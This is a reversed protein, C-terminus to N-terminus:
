AGLPAVDGWGDVLAGPAVIARIKVLHNRFLDYRGTKRQLQGAVLGPHIGITNAFGLIDREAFYPAKRAIFKELAVQPVCFEAGAVDATREEDAITLGSRDKEMDMDLIAVERGHHQVVHELEHRLVFWFNDIRDFRTSLAIVPSKDDLWLCVGDIKTSPIAEVLLFRIGAESLIRPVKRAADPSVLLKTLSQIAAKVSAQSYKAVLMEDALQRVRHLWAIQAPTTDGLLDTKKPRHVPSVIEGLSAVNFFQCLSANLGPDRVDTIGRLWGRKVIETVPLGAFIAKRMPLAPDIRIEIKAKALEYDKQLQLLRDPDIGLAVNLTLALEADIPKAGTVIRSVTQENTGLVLALLRQTWGHQQLHLAILQSPTTCGDDNPM